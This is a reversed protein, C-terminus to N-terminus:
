KKEILVIIPPCKEFNIYNCQLVTFESSSLKALYNLVKEKEAEGGKHGYYIVISIIGNPKLLKLAKTIAETTTNGETIISHDGGPLYGLNFMGCSIPEDIYKDISAHSDQILITNENYIGKKRLTSETNNLAIEQLDFAYVRGLSGVAEALFVTDHGNGMTGDLVTDGAKLKHSLLTHVLNTIRSIKMEEM